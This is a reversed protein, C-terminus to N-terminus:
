QWGTATCTMAVTAGSKVSVTKANEGSCKTLSGPGGSVSVTYNGQGVVYTFDTLQQEQKGNISISAGAPNSQIQLKGFGPSQLLAAPAGPFGSCLLVEAILQIVITKM